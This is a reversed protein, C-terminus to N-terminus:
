FIRVREIIIKLFLEPNIKKKFCPIEIKEYVIDSLEKVEKPALHWFKNLLKRNFINEAVDALM